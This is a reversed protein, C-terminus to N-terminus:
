DRGRENFAKLLPELEGKVYEVPQSSLEHLSNHHSPFLIGKGGARRFDTIHKEYDDILVCDPNALLHKHNTLIIRDFAKGLRRQLWKVKGSGSDVFNTPASLIYWEDILRKARYWRVLDFIADMYPLPELDLWFRVGAKQVRECWDGETIEPEGRRILISSTAAVCGREGKPWAAILEAREIGFVRAAGGVFDALVEDMDLFIKM